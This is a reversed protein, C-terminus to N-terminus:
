MLDLSRLTECLEPYSTYRASTMGVDRAAHVNRESDDIFLINMPDAALIESVARYAAPMPKALGLIHSAIVREVL